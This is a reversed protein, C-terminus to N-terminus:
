EESAGNRLQQSIMEALEELKESRSAKILLVDGKELNEALTLAQAKDDCLHITTPGNKDIAAAYEPAGVCVLHDIGLEQALTGIAAHDSQSSEGLEHMKGLFAWSQGGREQAFLTLTSLAASMAEPSANYSDNILLVGPLETIEMRWRANSEATSLGGSIQDLSLGLETAIAAVALANAVQHLGIIRLGVASRGEPTILDFHARGERFEIDTARIDCKSDEGFLVSKGKHLQSMKPTYTDYNGLIAVAGDKLSSILESKAQAIVEVSGFEGVHASGVKLVVGINPEAIEALRAIDGLHRAGMEVICYRTKDTCRLLSIPAGLDNNFNGSPAVTEAVSSLVSALLEKTTTKGQSGTIGIVILDRLDRRVHNALAGLAKTVDEVLIHNGEISKSTLALVAGHAFADQAFDHGDASEGKLALFLSGNIADASNLVPAQTVLLDEGHLEGGVIKAIESAQLPIM